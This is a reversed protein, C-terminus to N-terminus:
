PTLWMVITSSSPRTGRPRGTSLTSSVNVLHSLLVEHQVVVLHCSIGYAWERVRGKLSM